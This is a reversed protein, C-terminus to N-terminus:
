RRRRSRSRSRSKSRSRRRTEREKRRSEEAKEREMKEMLAQRKEREEKRQKRENEKIAIQEDTLPLWYICPVAKTKRFLDDLLKAPAEEKGEKKREKKEKRDRSRDRRKMDRSPSHSLSRDKKAGDASPSRPRVRNRAYEPPSRGPIKDKDWERVDVLRKKKEVERLDRDAEEKSRKARERAQEETEKAKLELEKKRRKEEKHQHRLKEKIAEAKQDQKVTLERHFDLEAPETFDVRIVKPNSSPWKVGHLDARLAMAEDVTEFEAFCHSKIKDIWFSSDVLKGSRGLLEKLQNLTFPRVLNRIHVLTSPPNRSPSPPQTAAEPEDFLAGSLQLKVKGVVKEEVKPKMEVAQNEKDGSQQPEDEYDLEEESLVDKQSVKEAVMQMANEKRDKKLKSPPLEEEVDSDSEAQQVERTDLVIMPEVPDPKVDPIIDKLVDSSIALTARKAPRATGWRRKRTPQEGTKQTATETSGTRTSHLSIKRLQIKPPETPLLPQVEKETKDVQMAEEEVVEVKQSKKDSKPSEVEVSNEKGDTGRAVPLVHKAEPQTSQSRSRSRSVSSDKSRSRSRSFSRHRSFSRSRPPSRSLSRPLSRSYSRSRSGSWSGSRSSSGSRSRGRSSARSRSGRDERVEEKEAEKGDTEVESVEEKKVEDVGEKEMVKVEEKEPKRVEQRRETSEINLSEQKVKDIQECDRQPSEMEQQETVQDSDQSPTNAEDEHMEIIPGRKLKVKEPKRKPKDEHVAQLQSTNQLSRVGVLDANEELTDQNEERRRQKGKRKREAMDEILSTDETKNKDGVEDVTEQRKASLKQEIDEEQTDKYQEQVEKVSIDEEAHPKSGDSQEGSLNVGHKEQSGKPTATDEPLETITAPEVDVEMMSRDREQISEDLKPPGEPVEEEEKMGSLQVESVGERYLTPPGASQVEKAPKAAQPVVIPHSHRGAEAWYDRPKRARKIEEAPKEMIIPKQQM